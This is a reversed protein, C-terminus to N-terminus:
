VSMLFHPSHVDIHVGEEMRCGGVWGALWWDVYKSMWRYMWVDVWKYM